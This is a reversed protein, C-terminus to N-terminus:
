LDEKQRQTLVIRRVGHKLLTVNFNILIALQKGTIRLYSIVQAQHIPLLSEVAKLEVLLLGGVLFDLFSQGVHQGKYLLVIPVQRQFPINRLSFEIGLAEEYASELHGPGLHRHVEIAAGVVLKSLRSAEESPEDRADLGERIEFM